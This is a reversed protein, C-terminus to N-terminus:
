LSKLYEVLDHAQSDSLGLNMCSQYHQVVEGLTAFRADHHFGGKTHSFLSEAIELEQQRAWHWNVFNGPPVIQVAVGRESAAALFTQEVNPTESYEPANFTGYHIPCVFGAGLLKGAAAAQPATMDAPIGSPELGPYTMVAGNICLFAADFPGHKRRIRWWHGHWLTDGCHIIRRGGGQIM